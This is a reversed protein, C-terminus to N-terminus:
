AAARALAYVSNGFPLPRRAFLRHEARTLAYAARNVLAPPVEAPTRRAGFAQERARAALKAFFMWHFFYHSREVRLGAGACQRELEACTYRTRHQNWDDHDTWLLRFAPVTILLAGGPALLTRAHALAAAPADLHELVDLMTILAFREGPAYRADFPGLHIAARHPSDAPVLSADLEIGHVRGYRALQNFFLGEGCGIDLVQGGRPFVSEDLLEVLLRERARWWFHREYLSRYREAYAAEM